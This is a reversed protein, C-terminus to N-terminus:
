RDDHSVLHSSNKNEHKIRLNYEDDCFASALEMFGFGVSWAITQHAWHGFHVDKVNGFTPDKTDMYFIDRVVEAYSIAMTDYWKALQTIASIYSMDGLVQQQQPGLYDDVHVVLPTKRCPKSQLAERIFAGNINRTDELVVTVKDQDPGLGDRPLSDNTSYSNIIVDPGVKAIEEPYFWYKVSKIASGTNTGGIALNHVKVIDKKAFQNILLELRQPWACQRGLRPYCGRGGTVSGGFVAIHLPPYKDPDQVRMQVIHFINQLIEHSFTPIHRVGRRFRSASLIEELLKHLKADEEKDTFLDPILPNRSAKIIRPLHEQWLRTGTFPSTTSIFSCFGDDQSDVDVHQKPKPKQAANDEMMLFTKSSINHTNVITYTLIAGLGMWM